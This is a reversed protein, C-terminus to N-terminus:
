ETALQVPPLKSSTESDAASTAQSATGGEGTAQGLQRESLLKQLKTTTALKEELKRKDRKLLENAKDSKKLERRCQKLQQRLASM